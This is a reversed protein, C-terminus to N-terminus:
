SKIVIFQNKNPYTTFNFTNLRTYRSSIGIKKKKKNNLCKIKTM